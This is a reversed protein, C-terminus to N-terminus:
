TSKPDLYVRLGLIFGMDQLRFGRLPDWLTFTFSSPLKIHLPMKGCSYKITQNQLVTRHGVQAQAWGVVQLASSPMRARLFSSADASAWTPGPPNATGRTYCGRSSRTECQYRLRPEKSGTIDPVKPRRSLREVMVIGIINLLDTRVLPTVHILPAVGGPTPPLSVLSLWPSIAPILLSPLPASIVRRCPDPALAPIIGRRACRAVSVAPARGTVVRPRLTAVWPRFSM